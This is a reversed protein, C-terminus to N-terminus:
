KQISSVKKRMKEEYILLGKNIFYFFFCFDFFFNKNEKIKLNAERLEFNIKM